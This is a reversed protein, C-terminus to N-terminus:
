RRPLTGRKWRLAPEEVLRLSLEAALLSLPLVLATVALAHGDFPDLPTVRFVVDLVLLHWLFVGYSIRGLRRAPRSELLRRVPSRGDTGFVAPLLLAASALGYLVHKALAEWTTPPDLGRPGALPTTTLWFLLAAVAWCSGAADGLQDLVRALGSRDHWARLVAFGMGLAFWDLFQPLWLAAVREDLVGSRVVLTWVLAAGVMGGLLRAEARLQAAEGRPGRPRALRALLPLALYFAVEVALSWTQTLGALLGGRPYVHLLLVNAVLNGAPASRDLTPLVVALLVWYAPLVRLVRNRLYPRVAPAPGGSLAARVFPTYLLFGSLLFFVTVGMDGRSLVAGLTGRYTVGTQFGVHTAVVLLVALARLGDLAPFRGASVVPAPGTGAVDPAVPAGVPPSGPAGAPVATAEAAM